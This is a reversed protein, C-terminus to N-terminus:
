VGMVSLPFPLCVSILNCLFHVHYICLFLLAYSICLLLVPTYIQWSVLWDTEPLETLGACSMHMEIDCGDCLLIEDKDGPKELTSCYSFDNLLLIPLCLFCSPIIDFKGQKLCKSCTAM